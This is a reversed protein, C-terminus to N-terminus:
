QGETKFALRSLITTAMQPIDAFQNSSDITIDPYEPREFPIDEGVVNKIEGKAAAAYLGKVDRLRVIDLPADMFIEIYRSFRQRNALRIDPFISLTCCVVNINQSDLLKCLAVIREANIRRGEVSYPDNHPFHSFFERMEDGDLLVTNKEFFRMQKTLETGLTTKGSGSLGIIWIIM